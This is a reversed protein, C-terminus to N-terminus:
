NLKDVRVISATSKNRHDFQKKTDNRSAYHYASLKWHRSSKPREFGLAISNGSTKTYTRTVRDPGTLVATSKAWLSKITHSGVTASPFSSHVGHNVKM